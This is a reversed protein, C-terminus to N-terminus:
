LVTRIALLNEHGVEYCLGRGGRVEFSASNKWGALETGIFRKPSTVACGELLDRIHEPLVRFGHGGVENRFGVRLLVRAQREAGDAISSDSVESDTNLSRAFVRRREPIGLV